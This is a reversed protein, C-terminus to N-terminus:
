RRECVCVCIYIYIIYIIIYCSTISVELPGHLIQCKEIEKESLGVM